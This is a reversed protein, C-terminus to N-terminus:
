ACCVARRGTVSKRLRTAAALWTSPRCCRALAALRGRSAARRLDRQHEAGVAATLTPSM